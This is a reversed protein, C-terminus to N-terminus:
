VFRKPTEMQKFLEQTVDDLTAIRRDAEYAPPLRLDRFRGRMVRLTKFGLPRIGVFDKNPDDGIYVVESPLADEREAIRNLLIPSPKGHSRGYHWTVFVQKVLSPLGLARAKSRQVRPNGDTVIYLSYCDLRKLARKADPYLRIEPDHSRYRNLCSTVAQKSFHGYQKLAADFIAGRGERALTRRMTSLAGRRPIGWQRSMFDAVARLGSLVFSAEDYLTDDMDFIVVKV